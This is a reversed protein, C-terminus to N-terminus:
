QTKVVGLGALFIRKCPLAHCFAEFNLHGQEGTKALLPLYPHLSHGGRTQPKFLFVFQRGCGCKRDVLVYRSAIKFRNPKVAAKVSDIEQPLIISQSYSIYM